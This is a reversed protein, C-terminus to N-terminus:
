FCVEGIKALAAWQKSYRLGETQLAVTYLFSNFFIDVFICMAATSFYVLKTYQLAAAIRRRAEM